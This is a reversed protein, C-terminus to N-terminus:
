FTKLWWLRQLTRIWINGSFLLNVLFLFISTDWWFKLRRTDWWFKNIYIYFFEWMQTHKSGVLVCQCWYLFVDVRSYEHAKILETKMHFFFSPIDLDFQHSVLVHHCWYLFREVRLHKADWWFVNVDTYFVKWRQNMM